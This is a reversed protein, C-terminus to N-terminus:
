NQGEYMTNIWSEDQLANEVKKPKIQSLYCICEDLKGM